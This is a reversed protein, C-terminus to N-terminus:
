LKTELFWYNYQTASTFECVFSGVTYNGSFVIGIMFTDGKETDYKNLVRNILEWHETSPKTSRFRGSSIFNSVIIKGMYKGYYDCGVVASRGSSTWMTESDYGFVATALVLLGAILFLKKKMKKEKHM